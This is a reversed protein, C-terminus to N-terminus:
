TEEDHWEEDNVDDPKNEEDNVEDSKKKYGTRPELKKLYEDKISYVEGQFRAAFDDIFEQSPPEGTV